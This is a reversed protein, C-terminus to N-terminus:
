DAASHQNAYTQAKQQDYSALKRSLTRVSIGLLDAARQQHGSTQQLVRLITRRELEELNSVFGDNPATPPGPSSPIALDAPEISHREAFVAARTILNRLERVNGPWHYQELARQATPSFDLGPSQRALFFEALPVIDAIRERLPPVRLAVQSLRHYLDGRFKGQQIMDELNQNTAALVRVDVSVKKTGGIRYYPVGDLVRLLKAQAKADLEGIEDLYITGTHAMEFLGQKASDAGSFAGKEYGFLESEVLHDPLAACNVDVWPKSARFSHHHLARAIVEKGSGSEGLIIVAAQTQAVRQARRMLERMADSCLVVTMGLYTEVQVASRM